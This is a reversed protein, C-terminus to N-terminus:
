SRRAHATLTVREFNAVVNWASRWLVSAILAAVVGGGLEVLSGIPQILVVGVLFASILFGANGDRRAQASRRDIWGLLAGLLLFGIILSPWGFSMYFEMVQGVGWSTEDSLNLGTMDRVITGSGAVVPKDPWLIRPIMAIVGEYLSQGNDFSAAGHEIRIAALGVFVNQNLRQDLARAEDDDQLNFWSARSFARWTAEGRETFDSPSWIVARLEQRAIFYTSFLSVGVYALVASLLVVHTLRRAIVALGCISILIAATGYSLFGTLVLMLMPYAGLVVLWALFQGPKGQLFAARLGLIVGLIWLSSGKEIAAGISPLSMFPALGFTAVLGGIMCFSRFRAENPFPLDSARSASSFRASGRADSLWVGAVFAVCGVATQWIGVRTAEAFEFLEPRVANIWAGPAHNLLLLSLYAIPLGISLRRYRLLVLLGIWAAATTALSVPIDPASSSLM